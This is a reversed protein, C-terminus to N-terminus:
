TSCIRLVLRSNALSYKNIAAMSISILDRMNNGGLFDASPTSASSGRASSTRRKISYSCIFSAAARRSASGTKPRSKKREWTTISCDSAGRKGSTFAASKRSAQCSMKFRAVSLWCWVMVRSCSLTRSCMLMTSRAKCPRLNTSNSSSKSVVRPGATNTTVNMAM